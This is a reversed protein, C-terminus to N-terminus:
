VAEALSLLQLGLLDRVDPADQVLRTNWVLDKWFMANRLQQASNAVGRLWHAAAVLAAAQQCAAM